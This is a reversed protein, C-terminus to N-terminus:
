GLAGESHEEELYEEWTNGWHEEWLGGRRLAGGQTSRGRLQGLTPRHTM